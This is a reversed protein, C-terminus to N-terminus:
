RVTCAHVVAAPVILCQGWLPHDCLFTIPRHLPDGQNRSASAADEAARIVLSDAYEPAIADQAARLSAASASRFEVLVFGHWGSRRRAEAVLHSEEYLSQGESPETTWVAQVGQPLRCFVDQLRLDRCNVGILLNPFRQAAVQAVRLLCQHGVRENLLFVGKCGSRSAQAVAQIGQQDERVALVPFAVASPYDPM